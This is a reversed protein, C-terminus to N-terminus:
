EIIITRRITRPAYVTIEPTEFYGNSFEVSAFWGQLRFIDGSNLNDSVIRLCFEIEVENLVDGPLTVPGATNDQSMGANPTVFLGSGIQQTSDDGNSYNISPVYKIATSVGVTAYGGGNLSYKLTIPSPGFGIGEDANEVLLRVRFDRNLRQEWNVNTGAKWTATTESGDDDRGRFGTQALGNGIM